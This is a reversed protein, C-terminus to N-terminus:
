PAEPSPVRGNGPDSWEALAMAADAVLTFHGLLVCANLIEIVQQTCECLKLEGGIKLLRRQLGILKALFVSYMCEPTKPGLCLAIRPCGGEQGLHLVENFMQYIEHEELRLKALRVCAVTGHREVVIHRYTNAM